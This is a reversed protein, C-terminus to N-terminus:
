DKFVTEYVWEISKLLWAAIQDRGHSTMLLHQCEEMNDMFFCEVLVAPCAAGKILQFNAEKDIDGDTMDTRFKHDDFFTAFTAHFCDAIQDSTTQGPTTFIECGTGGGANSHVSLLWAKDAKYYNAERVREHLPTDEGMHYTTDYPIGLVTLGEILRAVIARNFEGEYLVRGDPLIPSRKGPTVYTGNILGGHGADLILTRM